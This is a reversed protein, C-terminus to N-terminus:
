VRRLLAGLLLVGDCCCHEVYVVLILLLALLSPLHKTQLCPQVLYPWGHKKEKQIPDDLNSAQYSPESSGPKQKSSRQIFSPNSSGLQHSCPRRRKPNQHSIRLRRKGRELVFPSFPSQQYRDLLGKKLFFRRM